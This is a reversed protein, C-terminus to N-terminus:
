SAECDPKVLHLPPRLWARPSKLGAHPSPKLTSVHLSLLPTRLRPPDRLVPMLPLRAVTATAAGALWLSLWVSPWLCIPISAWM